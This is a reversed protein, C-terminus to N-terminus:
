MREPAEIGMLFLGRALTVRVAAALAARAATLEADGTVIRHRDKDTFMRNFLASLDLLYTAILSPERERAASAVVDGFGSLALMIERELPTELRKWDVAGPNAGIGAKRAVSCLRAHTYQLYPGSDGHLNLAREWSFLVDRSRRQLFESFVVAGVGITEALRDANETAEPERANELIIGKAREVAKDLVEELFLVQGKRTAGTAREEGFVGPAFALMGFKVHECGRAWDHGMRELAAFVQRFHLEQQNAVVYLSLDFHFADRRYEAAALDRTAYTSAGDRKVALLPPMGLDELDVVEAGDSNKLLNKARLRALTADMRDNYFSEGLYHDFDVNLRKYLKKLDKLSEELFIKWLRVAEPDGAELKRFWDRAEDKLSEDEGAAAHFQIYFRLLSHVDVRQGPSASEAEKYSVMLQGFTTGWDGLHNVTVVKWGLARFIRALSAGIMTSRIHHVGLPKAINPSSYDIVVTKGAGEASAGWADPNELARGVAAGALADGRYIFNVYPGVARIEAFPSRAFGPADALAGAIEGAIAPPAKKRSKALAFCPWGLDGMEPKPPKVLEAALQDDAIEPVAASLLKVADSAFLPM